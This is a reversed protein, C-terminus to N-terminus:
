DLTRKVRIVQLNDPLDENLRSSTNIRVDLELSSLIKDKVEKKINSLASDPLKEGSSTEAIEVDVESMKLSVVCVACTYSLATLLKLIAVISSQM